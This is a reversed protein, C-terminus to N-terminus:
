PWKIEFLKPWYKGTVFFRKGVSDYAIGNLVSSEPDTLESQVISKLQSLDARSVVKGNDPDIKLIYNTYWKNAYIFGDIYELENLDGVYGYRATVGIRRLERFTDPQLFYINSSGDSVILETGNNTLGWGETNLPFEKLQKLTKADYVFGKRNRWSLQYIKGNILTIGEGFVDKANNTQLLVKGSALDVKRVNSQGEQGTGEYLNGDHWILGQTFAKPDHPFTNVLVPVVTSVTKSTEAPNKTNDTTNGTDTNNCSILFLVVLLIATFTKPQYLTYKM